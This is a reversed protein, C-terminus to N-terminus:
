LMETVVVVDISDRVEVIEFWNGNTRVVEGVRPPFTFYKGGIFRGNVNMYYYRPNM